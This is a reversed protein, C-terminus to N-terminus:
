LVSQYLEGLLVVRVLFDPKTFKMVHLLTESDTILFFRRTLSLMRIQRLVSCNFKVAQLKRMSLSSTKGGGNMSSSFVIENGVLLQSLARGPFLSCAIKTHYPTGSLGDRGRAFVRGGLFYERSAEPRQLIGSM